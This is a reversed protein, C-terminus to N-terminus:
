SGQAETQGGTFHLCSCSIARLTATFTLYHRMSHWNAVATSCVMRSRLLKFCWCHTIEPDWIQVLAWCHRKQGVSHWSPDSLQHGPQTLLDSLPKVWMDGPAQTERHCPLLSATSNRLTTSAGGLAACLIYLCLSVDILAWHWFSMTGQEAPWFWGSSRGHSLFPFCVRARFPPPPLSNAVTKLKRMPKGPPESLLSDAQLIPSRPQSFGRSFPSAVWELIRAQLIGHVSFGPPSCGMPDWLTLCSQAALVESLRCVSILAWLSVQCVAEDTDGITVKLGNNVPSMKICRKSGMISQLRILVNKSVSVILM